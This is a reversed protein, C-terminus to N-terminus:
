LRKEFESSVTEIKRVFSSFVAEIYNALVERCSAFHSLDNKRSRM